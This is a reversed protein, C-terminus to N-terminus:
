RRLDGRWLDGDRAAGSRPPADGGAAADVLDALRRAEIEMDHNRYSFGDCYGAAYRRAMGVRGWRERQAVHVLEHVLLTRDGRGEPDLAGRVFITRGLTMGRHGTPLRADTVIRVTAPDILALLEARSGEVDPVPDLVAREAAGLARARRPNMVRVLLEVAFYVPVGAMGGVHVGVARLRSRGRRAGPKAM